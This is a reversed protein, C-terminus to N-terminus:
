LTSAVIAGPQKGQELFPSTAGWKSGAATM